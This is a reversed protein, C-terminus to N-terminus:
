HGGKKSMLPAPPLTNRIVFKERVIKDFIKEINEVDSHITEFATKVCKHMKKVFNAECFPLFYLDMSLGGDNNPYIYNESVLQAGLKKYFKIRRLTDPENEDPKEVELWIGLFESFEKKMANFIGTGFGKSHNEKFIAIYDLWLTNNKKDTFLIVYGANEGSIKVSYARYDPNKLLEEFREKSKLESKPFQALLDAYIASFNNNSNIFEVKQM